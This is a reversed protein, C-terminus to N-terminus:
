RTLPITQFLELTLKILDGHHIGAVMATILGQQMLVNLFYVWYFCPQLRPRSIPNFSKALLQVIFEFNKGDDSDMGYGTIGSCRNSSGDLKSWNKVPLKPKMKQYIDMTFLTSCANYVSALSAMLAALLGGAVLGRLGMRCSRNVM